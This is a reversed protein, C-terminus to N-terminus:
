KPEALKLVFGKRRINKVCSTDLASATGRNIFDATLNQICNLGDLGGFGHGGQPVVIHLSNPLHKAAADGYVPPTM